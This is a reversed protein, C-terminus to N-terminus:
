AGRPHEIYGGSGIADLLDVVHRNAEVDHVRFMRVGAIMGLVTSATTYHELLSPNPNECLRGMFRKRSVGLLVPFGEAVLTPLGAILALNDESRKGFGIGPDLIIREREVGLSVAASVKSRLEDRVEALVDVYYPQIQMTTPTGRSHMIILSARKRAALRWVDEEAVGAGVNNILDAGARLAAEAVEASRTDVSIRVTPPLVRRLQEVVPIVRDKQIDAKVPQAGPRTSEGGVDIVDAGERVMTCARDVATNASLYRGGDSFSDPTVNLIGMILPRAFDLPRPAKEDRNSGVTQPMPQSRNWHGM